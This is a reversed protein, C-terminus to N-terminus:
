TRLTIFVNSFFLGMLNVWHNTRSNELSEAVVRDAIKELAKGGERKNRKLTEHHNPFLNAMRKDAQFKKGPTKTAMNNETISSFYKHFDLPSTCSQYFLAFDTTCYDVQIEYFHKLWNQSIVIKESEVSHLALSITWPKQLPKLVVVEGISSLLAHCIVTANGACYRQACVTLAFKRLFVIVSFWLCGLSADSCVATSLKFANYSNTHSILYRRNYLRFFAWNLTWEIFHILIVLRQHIRTGKPTWKVTERLGHKWHELVFDLSCVVIGVTTLESATQLEFIWGLWSKKM